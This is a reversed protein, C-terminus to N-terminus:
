DGSVELLIGTEKKMDAYTVLPRGDPWLIELYPKRGSVKEAMDMVEKYSKETEFKLHHLSPGHKDLWDQFVGPGNPSILEIEYGDERYIASAIDLGMKGNVIKDMFFEKSNEISWPGIGFEDEYLKAAECANEVVIGLHIVKGLKKSM